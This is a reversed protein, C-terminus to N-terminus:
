ATVGAWDVLLTDGPSPVEGSGERLDKLQLGSPTM